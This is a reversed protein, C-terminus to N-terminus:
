KALYLSVSQQWLCIRNKEGSLINIHEQSFTSKLRVEGVTARSTKSASCSLLFPPFEDLPLYTGWRQDLKTIKDSLERRSFSTSVRSIDAFTGPLWSCYAEDVNKNFLSKRLTGGLSSNRSSTSFTAWKRIVSLFFNKKKEGFSKSLDFWHLTYVIPILTKALITRTWVLKPMYIDITSAGTTLRTTTIM